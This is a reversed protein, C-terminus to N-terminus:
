GTPADNIVPNNEPPNFESNPATPTTSEDSAAQPTLDGKVSVLTDGDFFLSVRVERFNRDGVQYTNVYDWRDTDYANRLVPAGMVYEVQRRTMGPKLKNIMEQTIVNGQQVPVHAVRPWHFSCAACSLLLVTAFHRL